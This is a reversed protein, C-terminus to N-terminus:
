RGRRAPPVATWGSPLNSRVLSTSGARTRLKHALKSDHATAAGGGNRDNRKLRATGPHAATGHAAPRLGHFDAESTVRARAPASVATGHARPGQTGRHPADGREAVT